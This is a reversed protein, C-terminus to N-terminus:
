AKKSSAERYWVYLGAGVILAAGALTWGDPWDQFFIVGWLTAWILGTYAYPALMGVEGLGLARILFLQSVTGFTAIMLMLAISTLDPTVWFFPVVCTLVVAGFAATYFLSTWPDDGRVFRTALNYGSHSVAAMLPLLAAPKFMEGGPRIVILAGVLAVMIGLIRRPGIKEGLFLAAGLTILVPNINMIATAETLGLYTVSFFFLTTGAMLLVSRLAQMGPHNTKLVQRLRPAVLVFVFLTQGLYRAWIAPVTGTRASLAKASADMTSFLFVTALMFLIARTHPSFRQVLPRM